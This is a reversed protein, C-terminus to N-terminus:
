TLDIENTSANNIRQSSLEAEINRDLGSEGTEEERESQLAAQSSM